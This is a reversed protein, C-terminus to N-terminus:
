KFDYGKRLLSLLETTVQAEDQIRIHHAYVNNYVSTKAILPHEIKESYYFKIDLQKAMPRVILWAKEKTFIITKTSAGVSCPEWDIVGILLQDFALILNESAGELIDDITNTSCM